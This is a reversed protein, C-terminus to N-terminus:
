SLETRKLPERMEEYSYFCVMQLRERKKAKEDLISKMQLWVLLPNGTLRPPNGSKIWWEVDILFDLREAATLAKFSAKLRKFSASENSENTM